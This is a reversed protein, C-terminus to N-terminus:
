FAHFNTVTILISFQTKGSYSVFEKRGYGKPKIQLGAYVSPILKHKEAVVWDHDPLRVRYEMHFMIPSQEKAATVGLPVRAKDDQSIMAVDFPGLLSALENMHDITCKAFTQDVHSKHLDNSARILRVPATNIHRKGDTTSANRPLLHYYTSSRSLNSGLNKLAATMDSVTKITRLCEFRRRDEAQSGYEALSAIAELLGPQEDVISPRGIKERSALTAALEPHADVADQIKRKRDARFKIKRLRDTELSKLKSELKLKDSRLTKLSVSQEPTLVGNQERLLLGVLDANILNLQEQLVDQKPKSATLGSSESPDDGSIDDSLIVDMEEAVVDTSSLLDGGSSSDARILNVSTGAENSPDSITATVSPQPAKKQPPFKQFFQHLTGKPTCSKLEKMKDDYKKIYDPDAKINNWFEHARDQNTRKSELPYTKCFQKYLQNILNVKDM